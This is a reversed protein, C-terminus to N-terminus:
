KLQMSLLMLSDVVSSYTVVVGDDIEVVGGRPLAPNVM